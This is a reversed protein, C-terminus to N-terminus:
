WLAHVSPEPRVPDIVQDLALWVPAGPGRWAAEDAAPLEAAPEYPLLECDAVVGQHPRSGCLVNLVHKSLTAVPLDRELAAARIRAIAGADKRKSMDM